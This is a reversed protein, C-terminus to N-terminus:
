CFRVNLTFSKAPPFAIIALFKLPPTQAFEVKIPRVALLQARPAGVALKVAFLVVIQAPWVTTNVFKLVPEGVNFVQVNAPPVGEM